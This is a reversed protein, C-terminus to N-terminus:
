CFLKSILSPFCCLSSRKWYSIKILLISHSIFICISNIFIFFRIFLILIVFISGRPRSVVIIANCLWTYLRLIFFFFKLHKAWSLISEFSRYKLSSIIMMFTSRWENAWTWIIKSFIWKFFPILLIIIFYSFNFVNFSNKIRIRFCSVFRTWAIIFRLFVCKWLLFIKLFLVLWSKSTRIASFNIM